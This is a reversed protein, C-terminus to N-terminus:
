YISHTIMINSFCMDAHASEKQDYFLKIGYNDQTIDLNLLIYDTSLTTFDTNKEITYIKEWAGNKLIQIRFRGMRRLYENSTSFGNYYFTIKSIHIIDTRESSCFVDEGNNNSSTENYMFANVINPLQTAGSDGTPSNSKTTKIFKSTKGSGNKNSCEIM